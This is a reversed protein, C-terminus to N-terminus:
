GGLSRLTAAFGDRVQSRFGVFFRNVLPVAWRARTAANFVRLTVRTGADEPALRYEARYWWDGQVVLVPRPGSDEVRAGELSASLRRLVDPVSGPVLGTEEALPRM